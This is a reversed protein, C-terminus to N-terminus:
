NADQVNLEESVNLEDGVQLYRNKAGAAKAKGQSTAQAYFALTTSISRHGMREQVVKPDHGEAVLMTAHTRRLDHFTVGVLGAKECAPAFVRRRFNSHNLRHGEPSTFLPSDPDAGQRGTETIHRTIRVVDERDLPLERVGADTKSSTVVVMNKFAMFDKMKLNEFEKWRVGTALVFHIAYAYEPDIAELLAHCQEPTLPNRRVERAKPPKIGEMPNRVIIDQLVAERFIPRLINLHNRVTRASLGQDHWDSLMKLIHSRRIKSIPMSGIAPLLHKKMIGNRRRLTMAGHRLGPFVNEVAFDAFTIKALRDDPLHGRSKEHEAMRKFRVAEGLTRFNKSAQTGDIRRWKAQYRDGHKTKIKFIGPHKRM